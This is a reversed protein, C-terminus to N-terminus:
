TQVTSLHTYTDQFSLGLCENEFTSNTTNEAQREVCMEM